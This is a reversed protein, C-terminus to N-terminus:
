ARGVEVRALLGLRARAVRARLAAHVRALDRPVRGPRRRLRPRARAGRILVGLPVGVIWTAAADADLPSRYAGFVLAAAFWGGLLPLADRAYGTMSLAHDHSLLGVTAFTVIGLADALPLLRPRRTTTLGLEMASVSRAARGPGRPAGHVYERAILLTAADITSAESTAAPAARASPRGTSPM